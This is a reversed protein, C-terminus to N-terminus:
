ESGEVRVKSTSPAVLLWLLLMLWWGKREEDTSPCVRSLVGRRAQSAHSVSTKCFLTHRRHYCASSRLAPKNSGLRTYNVHVLLFLTTFFTGSHDELRWKLFEEVGRRLTAEPKPNVAPRTQTEQSIARDRAGRPYCSRTLSQTCDCEQDPRPDQLAHEHTHAGRALFILLRGEFRPRDTCDATSGCRARRRYSSDCGAM